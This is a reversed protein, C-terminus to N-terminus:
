ALEVLEAHIEERSPGLYLLGISPPLGDDSWCCASGPNFLLQSNIWKRVPVHSHGFIIVDEQPFEDVLYERYLDFQYGKRYYDLKNLLYRRLNGQGHILGVQYDGFTLNLRLPLNGLRVWDRNGRVAYVPAVQTLEELVRPVSVDGAHLIANVSASQFAQIIGSRLHGIRDPVHTDAIVGLITTAGPNEV